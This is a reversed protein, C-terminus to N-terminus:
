QVGPRPPAVRAPGRGPREDPGGTGAISGMARTCASTRVGSAFSSSTLQLRLAGRLEDPFYPATEGDTFLVVVRHKIGPDFFNTGAFTDLAAFTTARASYGKPPPRNIGVSEDLTATFVQSDATPFLDPLVRDTMTAVGSRVDSLALQMRLGAQLARHLRTAGRGSPAANM